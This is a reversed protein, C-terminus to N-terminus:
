TGQSRGPDLTGRIDAAHAMGNRTAILWAMALGLPAMFVAGIWAGRTMGGHGAVAVILLGAGVMALIALIVLPLEIIAFGRRM